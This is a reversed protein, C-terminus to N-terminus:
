GNDYTLKFLVFPYKRKIRGAFKTVATASTNAPTVMAVATTFPSVVEVKSTSNIQREVMPSYAPPTTKLSTNSAVRSETSLGSLGIGEPKIFFDLAIKNPIIKNIRPSKNANKTLLNELLTAIAITNNAITYSM